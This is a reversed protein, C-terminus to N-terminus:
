KGFMGRFRRFYIIFFRTLLVDYLVFCATGLTFAIPILFKGAEAPVFIYLSLVYLGIFIFIAVLKLLWTRIGGLKEAAPKLLPYFGGVAAYLVCVTKDHLLVACLVTCVAVSCSSMRVGTEEALLMTVIGCLVVASMDLVATVTGLWLLVVSLAAGM